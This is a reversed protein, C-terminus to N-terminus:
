QQVEALHALFAQSALAGLPGAEAKSQELERVDFTNTVGPWEGCTCSARCTIFPGGTDLGIIVLRPEHGGPMPHETVRMGARVFEDWTQRNM